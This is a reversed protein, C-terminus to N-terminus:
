THILSIMRVAVAWNLPTMSLFTYSQLPVSKYENITFFTYNEQSKVLMM